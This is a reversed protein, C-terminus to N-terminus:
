DTGARGFHIGGSTNTEQSEQALYIVPKRSNDRSPATAISLQDGAPRLGRLQPGDPFPSGRYYNGLTGGETALAEFKM